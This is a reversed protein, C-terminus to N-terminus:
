AAICSLFIVYALATVNMADTVLTEEGQMVEIKLNCSVRETLSALYKGNVQIKLNRLQVEEGGKLVQIGQSFPEILETDTSINVILNEYDSETENKLRIERVIPSGNQQMAYTLVNNVDVSITVKPEM